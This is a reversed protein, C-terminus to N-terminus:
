GNFVEEDTQSFPEVTSLEVIEVNIDREQSDAHEEFTEILDYIEQRNM